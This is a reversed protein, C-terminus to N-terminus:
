KKGRDARAHDILIPTFYSPPPSTNYSVSTLYQQRVMEGNHLSLVSFPTNVGQIMKWNDFLEVEEDRDKYRPDRVVFTKKVPLHTKLDVMITVGENRSNIISIKETVKNEALTQGEDLLITGPENLWERLVHELTYHRRVLALRVSDDKQPDLMTYGKYTVDYVKEGVYLQVYDRQETLEWRDADPWRSYRFFKAGGVQAENHFRGYRGETYSDQVTLYAQGGLAQIMQDIVARAKQQNTLAEQGVNAPATQQGALAATWLLLLAFLRMSKKKHQIQIRFVGPKSGRKL